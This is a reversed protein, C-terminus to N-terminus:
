RAKVQEAAPGKKEHAGIAPGQPRPRRPQGAQKSGAEFEKFSVEKRVWKEGLKKGEFMAEMAPAVDEMLRDDRAKIAALDKKADYIARQMKNQTTVSFQHGGFERQERSWLCSVYKFGDPNSDKLEKLKETDLCKDGLIVPKIGLADSEKIAANVKEQGAEEKSFMYDEMKFQELKWGDGEVVIMHEKIHQQAVKTREWMADINISPLLDGLAFELKERDLGQIAQAMKRDIFHQTELGSMYGEHLSEIEGDEGMTVGVTGFALDNDIGQIGVVNRKGDPGPESLKYFMNGPNRDMQGCLFDLMEITSQDKYFGPNRSFEVKEAVMRMTTENKSRFDTGEAFEMFCGERTKDGDKVVMKESHAVITGVGLLEAIRSTAVNRDTLETEKGRKIAALDSATDASALTRITDACDRLAKEDRIFNNIGVARVSGELTNEDLRAREKILNARVLGVELLGQRTELDSTGLGMLFQRAGQPDTLRQQYEEPINQRVKAEFAQLKRAERERPTLTNDEDLRKVETRYGMLAKATEEPIKGVLDKLLGFQPDSMDMNQWTDALRIRMPIARSSKFPNTDQTVPALTQELWERNRDYIDKRRPDSENALLQGMQEKWLLLEKKETFFGAKGNYETKVRRNVNSGVVEAGSGLQIVPITLKVDEWKKGEHKKVERLDRLQDLNKEKRQECLKAVAELREKGKSTVAGQRSEMYTECAKILKANALVVKQVSEASVTKTDEQQKQLEDMAAIVDQFAASDKGSASGRLYDRVGQESSFDTKKKGFLAM